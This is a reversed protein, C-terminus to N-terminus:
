PKDKRTKDSIMGSRYGPQKLDDHRVSKLGLMKAIDNCKAVVADNDHAVMIQLMTIPKAGLDLALASLDIAASISGDQEASSRMKDIDNLDFCLFLTTEAAGDADEINM